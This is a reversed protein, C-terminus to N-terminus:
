CCGCACVPSTGPHLKMSGLIRGFLWRDHEDLEEDCVFLLQCSDPLDIVPQEQDPFFGPKRVQWYTLGIAKMLQLDRQKM